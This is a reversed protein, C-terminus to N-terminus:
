PRWRQEREEARQDHGQDRLGAGLEVAQRRQEEGGAGAGDGQPHQGGEVRVVGAELELDFRVQIASKPM